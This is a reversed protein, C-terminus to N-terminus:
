SSPTPFEFVRYWFSLGADAVSMLPHGQANVVTILGGGIEVREGEVEIAEQNKRNFRFRHRVANSRRQRIGAREEHMAPEDMLIPLRLINHLARKRAPRLRSPHSGFELDSACSWTVPAQQLKVDSTGPLHLSLSVTMGPNLLLESEVLCRHPYFGWITGRGLRDEDHVVITCPIPLAEPNDSCFCTQM